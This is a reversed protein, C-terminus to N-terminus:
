VPLHANKQALAILNQSGDPERQWIKEEEPTSERMMEDYTQGRESPTHDCMFRGCLPCLSMKVGEKRTNSVKNNFLSPVGKM